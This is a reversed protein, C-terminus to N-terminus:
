IVEEIVVEIRPNERDLYFTDTYGVVENWGDDHIVGQQVLTDMIIKKGMGSINDLDRRRTKEYWHFHIRVPVSHAVLHEEGTCELKYQRIPGACQEMCEKKMNNGIYRNRNMASIYANLSPLSGHITIM